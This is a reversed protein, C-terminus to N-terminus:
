LDRPVRKRRPEAASRDRRGTPHRAGRCVPAGRGERGRRADARNRERPPQPEARQHARAPPEPPAHVRGRERAGAEPIRPHVRGGRRPATQRFHRLHQAGADRHLYYVSRAGLRRTPRDIEAWEAAQMERELRVRSNYERVPALTERRQKELEYLHLAAPQNECDALIESHGSASAAQLLRMDNDSLQAQRREFEIKRDLPRVEDWASRLERYTERNAQESKANRRAVADMLDLYDAGADPRRRREQTEDSVPAYGAATGADAQGRKAKAEMMAQELRRKLYRRWLPAFREM